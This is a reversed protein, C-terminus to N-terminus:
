ILNFKVSKVPLTAVWSSVDWRGYSIIYNDGSRVMGAAYEISADDFVFDDTIGILRGDLNWQAIQHTYYRVYRTEVGFTNPNYARFAKQVVRHVVSVYYDEERILPSGGRVWKYELNAGVTAVIEGDKYTHTSSYVYDFKDTEGEYLPLWNKEIRKPDPAPPSDIFKALNNEVDLSFRWLRALPTHSELVVGTIQWGGDRWFLRCDEIGRRLPLPAEISIERLEELELTKENLYGFWLRNLIVGGTTLSIFKTELNYVYNSSRITMAIRGDPGRAISPNFASWKMDGSDPLRLVKKVSGGLQKVTPVPTDM